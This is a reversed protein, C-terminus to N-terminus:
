QSLMSILYMRYQDLGAINNNWYLAVQVPVGNENDIVTYGNDTITLKLEKFDVFDNANPLTLLTAVTDYLPTTAENLQCQLVTCFFLQSACLGYSWSNSSAIFPQYYQPPFTTVGCTDLPTIAVDWGARFLRQMCYPCMNVNYENVPTSSNDYGRYISGAMARIRANKVISPYKQLLTPFNTAPGIAIVDVVTESSLIVKAMQDVGDEYVGGKYNSLNFDSAWDWLTHRTNNENALGIGVPIDDRGAITLLKAVIKARTTTDDTCTVVLKVDLYQSQLAFGIAYSDDIDSGIDTDIVVPQPSAVSSSWLPETHAKSQASAGCLLLPTLLLMMSFPAM